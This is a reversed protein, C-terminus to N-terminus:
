TTAEGPLPWWCVFDGAQITNARAIILGDKLRVLVRGTEPLESMPRGPGWAVGDRDLANLADAARGAEHCAMVDQGRYLIRAMERGPSENVTWRKVPEPPPAQETHGAVVETVPAGCFGGRMAPSGDTWMCSTVDIGGRFAHGLDCVWTPHGPKIFDGPAPSTAQETPPAPLPQWQDNANAPVDAFDGYFWRQGTAARWRFGHPATEPTPAGHIGVVYFQQADSMRMM